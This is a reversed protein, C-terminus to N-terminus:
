EYDGDRELDTKTIKIGCVYGESSYEASVYDVVAVNFRM